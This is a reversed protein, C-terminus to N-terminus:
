RADDTGSGLTDILPRNARILMALIDDRVAEQEIREDFIIQFQAAGLLKRLRDKGALTAQEMGPCIQGDPLVIFNYVTLATSLRNRITTFRYATGRITLDDVVWDRRTTEAPTWGHAVYCIPPYHGVIDRVDSCQVLLFDVQRGSLMDQYRRSVIVNPKLLEVAAEPVPIDSGLWSGVHHPVKAAAASVRQHFPAPDVPRARLVSQELQIGALLLVCALVPLVRSALSDITPRDTM